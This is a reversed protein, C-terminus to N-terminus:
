FKNLVQIKLYKSYNELSIDSKSFIFRILTNLDGVCNDILFSHIYVYRNPLLRHRWYQRSYLPGHHCNPSQRVPVFCFSQPPGGLRRNDEYSRRVRRKQRTEMVDVVMLMSFLYWGRLIRFPCTKHHTAHPIPYGVFIIKTQADSSSKSEATTADAKQYCLHPRRGGRGRDWKWGEGEERPENIVSM